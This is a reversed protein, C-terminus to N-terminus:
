HCGLSAAFFESCERHEERREYPHPQKEDRRNEEDDEGRQRVPVENGRGMEHTQIIVCVDQAVRSEPPRNQGGRSKREHGDRRGDDRAQQDGHSQVAPEGPRAKELEEVDQRPHAGRQGQADHPLPQEVRRVAQDVVQEASPNLPQAIGREGQWGDSEDVYPLVDAVNREEEESSQLRYWPGDDLSRLKVTCPRDPEDHADIKGHQPGGGEENEDRGEDGRELGEVDDVPQRAAIGPVRSSGGIDDGRLDVSRGEAGGVPDPTGARHGDNEEDKDDGNGEDLLAIERLPRHVFKLSLLCALVDFFCM